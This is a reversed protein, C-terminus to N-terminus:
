VQLTHAATCGAIIGAILDHRSTAAATSCKSGFVGRSTRSRGAAAQHTTGLGARAGEFSGGGGYNRKTGEDHRNAGHIHQVAIDVRCSCAVKIHMYIQGLQHGGLWCGGLVLVDTCM